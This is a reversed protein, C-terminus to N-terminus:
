CLICGPAFGFGLTACMRPAVDGVYWWWWWRASWDVFVGMSSCWVNWPLVQITYRGATLAAPLPVDVMLDRYVGDVDYYNVFANADGSQDLPAYALRVRNSGTNTHQNAWEHHITSGVTFKSMRELIFGPDAQGCPAAQIDGASISDIRRQPVTSWSHAAAMSVGLVLLAVISLKM